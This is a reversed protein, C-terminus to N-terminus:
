VLSASVELLEFHTPALTVVRASATRSTLDVEVARSSSGQYFAALDLTGGVLASEADASLDAILYTASLASSGVLTALVPGAPGDYSGLLTLGPAGSFRELLELGLADALADPDGNTM